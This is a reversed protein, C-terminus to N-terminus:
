ACLVLLDRDGPWSTQLVLPAVEGGIHTLHPVVRIEIVHWCTSYACVEDGVHLLPLNRFVAGNTTRHGALWIGPLDVDVVHGQDIEAQGGRVIGEHLGIAPIDLRACGALIVLALALLRRV